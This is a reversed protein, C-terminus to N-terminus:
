SDRYLRLVAIAESRSIEGAQYSRLAAIAESRDIRGNENADHKVLVPNPAASVKGTTATESKGSGHGDTYKAVVQLYYGVDDDSPTYTMTEEAIHEFTGDMTMSRSWQWDVVAVVGDLDTLTATLATGAIPSMSSLELTGTEDVNNVNITVDITDTASDADMATVTVMYSSKTEHDLAAKTMLQGTSGNITFSAEDSGGLTYAVKDGEDPDTATVPDGVNMGAATNEDISRTATAGEDFMPALNEVAIDTVNITIDRTDTAGEPDTATVTVMYSMKTEYDLAAKTMLQGTASGIDFSAADTGSLTYTLTDGDQDTAVIPNGIDMGADTNEAISRTGTAHAFMPADNADTVMVSVDMMAMEGGAMAKVMVMYTNDANADAMAEYDPSASFSLMGGSISFAGADAGEVSWAATSDMTGGSLTYTGVAGTGNEAYTHSADGALTGLENVDDVMVSVDMMEMEGGAMAKVTVMYTNDGDADAMAEYDPSASFSLTGGSISFAGADAGEVSWDAASDMTGGSLTYTDVAGTGNEAYTHSAIGALTGLENIDTVMVSVDMMEMEGGAEAMVTVMYTNSDGNAGGMPNEYDPAPDFALVGGDISFDDADYGGLSWMVSDAGAGMITFTGLDATGNEAYESPITTSMLTGLEDVDTVMVTVDTMSTVDRGSNDMVTAKVTVMYENTNTDSMPEGRPNDYDPGDEAAFKLTRSNGTGELTFHDADAGGLSWSPATDTGTVTVTYDGLAETGNEEHTHSNEGVMRLTVPIPQEEENTVEITLDITDYEGDQDTAKVKVAYTSQLEHDLKKQSLIQGTAPVIVFTELADASGMLEYILGDIHDGAAPTSGTNDDDGAVMPIGVDLNPAVPLNVGPIGVGRNVQYLPGRQPTPELHVSDANEKIPLTFTDESFVPPENVDTVIVTIKRYVTTIAADTGAPDAAVAQVAVHYVNDGANTGVDKPKEYNPPSTFSLNGDLENISFQARDVIDAAEIETASDTPVIQYKIGPGPNPTEPNLADFDFVPDTGNEAYRVKMDDAEPNVWVPRENVDTINVIVDVTNSGQDGSPDTARITVRYVRKDDPRDYELKTDPKFILTGAVTIPDATSPDAGGDPDYTTPHEVSGVIVFYKADEGELSYTLRDNGLGTANGTSDDEDTDEDGYTGSVDAIDEAPLVELTTSFVADNTGIVNEAKEVTYTLAITDAAPGGGADDEIERFLPKNNNLDHRKVSNESGVFAGELAQNVGDNADPDAQQYTRDVADDYEFAVRLCKPATWASYTVTHPTATTNTTVTVGIDGGSWVATPMDPDTTTDRVVTAGPGDYDPTYKAKAGTGSAGPIAQWGETGPTGVTTGNGGVIGNVDRATDLFYRFPPPSTEAFPDASPCAAGQEAPTTAVARYWQWRVNTLPTDMDTLEAVLEVGIEPQRNLISVRGPENDEGSNIVKVTVPLKASKGSNQDTVVLTVEYVNNNSNSRAKGRPMEWDPAAKFSLTAPLGATADLTGETIKFWDKDPGDLSWVLDETEGDDPDMAYYVAPDAIGAPTTVIYNVGNDLDTDIVTADRMSIDATEGPARLTNRVAQYKSSRRDVEPHSMETPVREGAEHGTDPIAAVYTSRISPGENEDLVIISVAITSSAEDGDIATVTVNHTRDALAAVDAELGAGPAVTIQGTKVDIRFKAADGSGATTDRLSYGLQDIRTADDFATVPAGVKTGAPSNEVVFRETTTRGQTPAAATPGNGGILTTQDPFKPAANSTVTDERVPLSSVVMAENPDDVTGGAADVYKVTVRLFKNLEDSTPRFTSGTSLAPIDEWNSSTESPQSGDAPADHRAWQWSGSSASGDPDTLYASLTSGIQPQRPYVVVSGDENVNLVNVTVEIEEVDDGTHNNDGPLGDEGGSGVRVTVEYSNDGPAEYNPPSKFSLVGDVIKFRAADTGGLTWFLKQDAIDPDNASFTYVDVNGEYVEVTKSEIPDLVPANQAGAPRITLM